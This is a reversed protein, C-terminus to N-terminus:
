AKTQEGVLRRALVIDQHIQQRLAELNPFTMEPRVHALLDVALAKGYLDTRVDLLHVEISLAGGGLTPRVGINLVAPHRQQDWQAWGAYVGHQPILQRPDVRLNATPANLKEGGIGMGRVVEGSLRYPRGLLRNAEALQGALLLQRIRSSSVPSGDVTVPEVVVTAFGLEQGLRVLSEPSGQAGKGFRFNFGCVVVQAQLARGLVERAFRDAPTAALDRTFPLLVTRDVGAQELVALKEAPVTLLPPAQGRTVIAPHDAFTLVVAPVGMAGSRAIATQILVQHGRHVGDFNGIAVVSPGEPQPIQVDVRM